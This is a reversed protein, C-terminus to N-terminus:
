EPQKPCLLSVIGFAATFDIRCALFHQYASRAAALSGLQDEIAELQM